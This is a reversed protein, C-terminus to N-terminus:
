NVCYLVVFRQECREDLLAIRVVLVVFVQQYYGVELSFGSISQETREIGFEVVVQRAEGVTDDAKLVQFIAHENLVM